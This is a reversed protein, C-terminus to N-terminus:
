CVMASVKLAYKTAVAYFSLLCLLFIIKYIISIITDIIMSM